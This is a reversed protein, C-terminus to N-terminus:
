SVRSLVMSVGASGITFVLLLLLAVLVGLLVGTLDGLLSALLNNVGDVNLFTLLPDVSLAMFSMLSTMVAGTHDIVVGLDNSSRFMSAVLFVISSMM